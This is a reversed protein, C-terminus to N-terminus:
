IKMHEMANHEVCIYTSLHELDEREVFFMEDIMHKLTWAWCLVYIYIYIMLLQSVGLRCFLDDHEYATPDEIWFLVDIYDDHDIPEHRYITPGFNPINCGEGSVVVYDRTNQPSQIIDHFLAPYDKRMTAENERTDEDVEFHKWWVKLQVVTCKQLQVERKDLIHLPTPPFEGEPEM